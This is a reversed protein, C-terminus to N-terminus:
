PAGSSRGSGSGRLWADAMVAITIILGQVIQQYTPDINLINFGNGILALFLVGIVTRWIAGQGGLISTGGIVIAAIATLEFGQAATAQGSGIRSSVLVGAVGAALGSFAFAAARVGDVRIGSLRAAEPNGGIAKVYRGFTTRTLLLTTAIVFLVLIWVSWKVGVFGQQGLTTFSTREVSILAGGTVAVALGRIMISSALTGIFSNVRGVTMLAGNAGGVALGALCGAVLAVVTGASDALQAAVVGALAAVAGVSLDFSGSIMLVTGACAIIGIPAWQDLINLLNTKTLFVDSSLALVIVLTLFAVVVGLDRARSGLNRWGDGSGRDATPGSVAPTTAESLNM